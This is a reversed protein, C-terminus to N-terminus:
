RLGRLDDRYVQGGKMVWKVQRTAAIDRTPDGSVAVLDAWLGPAVSGLRDSWRLVRAATSTAARLAQLPTLGYNVLLELERANDGHAFVGVDSGNCITVGSRIALGFSARKNAIRTPEPEQGKKWGAYQATADGAALTPCFATGKSAMLGFVEATGFDGHEINAVGAMTARRMGEATSSHAVVFRGSSAAVEVAVRIEAETFAPRAEGDPGWRYDAYIKVWDAGHGIQDRVERAMEDASGVEAAGQPVSWETSFGKPAYSGRGVIARTTVVLRPGPIVGREVAHKLGVDAYGAGETGLDRLTTFGAMLTSRLHNTARAVRLSTSEKLVQEEWPAENYPHLLVHSHLDILGPILTLGPLDVVRANGSARVTSAPGVAVIREGRVLVVEGERPADATGDWVRAPRLLWETPPAQAVCPEALAVLVLARAISRIM